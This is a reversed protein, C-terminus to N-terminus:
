GPAAPPTMKRYTYLALGRLQLKEADFSKFLYDEFEALTLGFAAITVFENIEKYELKRIDLLRWSTAPHSGDLCIIEIETEDLERRHPYKLPAYDIHHFANCHLNGNYNTPWKIRKKKM